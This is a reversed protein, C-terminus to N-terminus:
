AGKAEEVFARIRAPDKRGPESELGSSADVGWPRLRHIAEQVSGPALGGSLVYPRPAEGILDWDLRRGTGGRGDEAYPELLPMHDDPISSWEIGNRVPVPHLVFRGHRRAAEAAPRRHHGHPQVADAGTAEMLDLIEEPTGDLTVLVSLASVGEILGAVAEPELYRASGRDLVFGIADAGAEVAASVDRASRVGCVKVWTM